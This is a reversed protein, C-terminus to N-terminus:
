SLEGAGLPDDANWAVRDLGGNEYLERAFVTINLLIPDCGVFEWFQEMTRKDGLGYREIEALIEAREAASVNPTRLDMLGWLANVRKESRDRLVGVEKSYPMRGRNSKSAYRHFLVDYPPSYFDYGHTWLRTAHHFEEGHFLWKTHPDFPM